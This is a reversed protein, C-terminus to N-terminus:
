LDRLSRNSKVQKGEFNENPSGAIPRETAWQGKITEKSTRKKSCQWDGIALVDYSLSRQEEVVPRM